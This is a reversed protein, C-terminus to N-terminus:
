VDDLDPNAPELAQIGSHAIARRAQILRKEEAAAAIGEDSDPSRAVHHPARVRPRPVGRRDREAARRDIRVPQGNAIRWLRTRCRRTRHRTSTAVNRLRCVRSVVLSVPRVTADISTPSVHASHGAFPHRDGHGALFALLPLDVHREEHRRPAADEALAALAHEGLGRGLQHLAAARVARVLGSFFTLSCTSFSALRSPSSSHCNLDIPSLFPTHALAPLSSHRVRRCSSAHTNRLRGPKSAPGPQANCRCASFVPLCKVSVLGVTHQCSGNRVNSRSSSSSLETVETSVSNPRSPQPSPPSSNAHHHVSAGSANVASSGTYRVCPSRAAGSARRRVHVVLDDLVAVGRRAAPGNGSAWGASTLTDSPRVRTRFGRTPSPTRPLDWSIVMPVVRKEGPQLTFRVAIAGALTEGSSIWKFDNNALRGDKSFPTWVQDGGFQDPIFSNQYTVEVGASELSSIAFQGDWDDQVEGPRIRDFVVSKMMGSNGLPTSVISNYNGSSMAQGSFDHSPYRFWGVMNAWSLLVSVTVPKNTPNDAHWRYVAVPYSSERYNNPLVPSFQELTVHAPLKDWQYDYWSKPYLAYYTGAGVPYDWKWSHLDQSKPHDTLLVQAIGESAGESKEYIAFQNAYVTEYKHVGAKLHWRSFDGRYTRSFTGSGFGGVPAGQWFGDDILDTLQPKRTGADALPVGIGRKWAIKPIVDGAWLNSFSMLLFTLFTAVKFCSSRM